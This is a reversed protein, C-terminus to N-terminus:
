ASFKSEIGSDTYHPVWGAMDSFMRIAKVNPASKGADFWHKTNKPVSILDGQQCLVNFVAQGQLNFWFLGEGSVFFRVEDESHTHEALFKARISPYDAIAPHINIVDATPYGNRTMYPVLHAEYASLIDEESADTALQIAVDWREYHIGVNALFAKIAEPETIPEDTVKAIGAGTAAQLEIHLIAM